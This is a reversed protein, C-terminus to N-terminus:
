DKFVKWRRHVWMWQEPFKRVYEEVKDCYVQTMDRVTDEPNESEVTNTDKKVKIPDEDM